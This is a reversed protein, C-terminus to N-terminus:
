KYDMQVGRTRKRDQNIEKDAPRKTSRSPENPLTNPGAANDPSGKQPEEIPVKEPLTSQLDKPPLTQDTNM